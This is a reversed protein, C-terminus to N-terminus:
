YGPTLQALSFALRPPQLTPSEPGMMALTVGPYADNFKARCCDCKALHEEIRGALEIDAMLTVGTVHDRFEAAHALCETCGIGGVQPEQFFVFGGAVITGVAFLVLSVMATSALQRLRKAREARKLRSVVQSLQGEACPEWQDISQDEHQSNNASM